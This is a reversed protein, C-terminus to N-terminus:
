GPEPRVRQVVLTEGARSGRVHGPLDVWRQGHWDTVLADLALVHEHFVESPPAGAALAALRLVRRRISPPQGALAAVPLPAGPPGLEAYAAEAVDDLPDTGLGASGM